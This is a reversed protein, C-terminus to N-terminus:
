WKLKKTGKSRFLPTPQQMFLLIQIWYIKNGILKMSLKDDTLDGIVPFIRNNDFRDNHFAVVKKLRIYAEEENNARLLCYIKEYKNDKLLAALLEGGLFGTVGTIFVNM